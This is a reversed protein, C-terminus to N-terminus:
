ARAVSSRLRKYERNHDSKAKRCDDCKCYRYSSVTGHKGKATHHKAEHCSKCLLQCKAIESQLKEESVGAMKTGLVFSKTTPDIHDFELESTSGCQVCKGGLKEIADARRRHYRAKMYERMYEVNNSM